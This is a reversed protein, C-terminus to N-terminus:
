AVASRTISGAKRERETETRWQKGELFTNEKAVRTTQVLMFVSLAALVAAGVVIFRRGSLVTRLVKPFMVAARSSNSRDRHTPSNVNVAIHATKRGAPGSPLPQVHLKSAKSSSSNRPTLKTALLPSLSDDSPNAPSSKWTSSSM